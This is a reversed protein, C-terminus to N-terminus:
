SLFMKENATLHNHEIKRQPNIFIFIASSGSNNSEDNVEFTEHIGIRRGMGKSQSFM